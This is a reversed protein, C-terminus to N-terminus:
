RSGEALLDIAAEGAKYDSPSLALNSLPTIRFRREFGVSSPM